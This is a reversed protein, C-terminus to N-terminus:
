NLGLSLATKMLEAMNRVNLKEMLHARHGEVTRSSIELQDAIEKNTLGRVLARLVERERKTLNDLTSQGEQIHVYEDLFITMAESSFAKQGAFIDHISSLLKEFVVDKFVYGDAGKVMANRVYDREKHMSLILVKIGPYNKKIQELAALGGLNPMSLDLIVLDCATTKLKALLAVGDTAEAVVTFDSAESILNRLGARLIAHDDALIIRKADGGPPM